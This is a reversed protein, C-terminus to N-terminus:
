LTLHGFCGSIWDEEGSSNSSRNHSSIPHLHPPSPITLDFHISNFRPLIPTLHGSNLPPPTIRLPQTPAGVVRRRGAPLAGLKGGRAVLSALGVLVLILM